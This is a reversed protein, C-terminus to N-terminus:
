KDGNLKHVTQYFEEYNDVNISLDKLKEKSNHGNTYLIPYMNLNNAVEFDHVTDGIMICKKPDINNNELYERGYELKGKAHTDNSACIGDFLNSIDFYNLQDMLLNKESATLIYLKYGEKKLKTLIEKVDKALNTEKKWRSNYTDIFYVSAKHFSDGPFKFGLKEYYGKVPFGFVERYKDISIHEINNQDMLELLLNYSLKLDELITGNFDFFIYEYKKM